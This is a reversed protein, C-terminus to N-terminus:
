FPDTRIMLADPLGPLPHARGNRIRAFLESAAHGTPHGARTVPTRDQVVTLRAADGCAAPNASHIATIRGTEDLDLRDATAPLIPVPAALRAIRWTGPQGTLMAETVAGVAAALQHAPDHFISNCLMGCGWGPGTRLAQGLDGRRMVRATNGLTIQGTASLAILGADHEPHAALLAPLGAMDHLAALNLARGDRGPANPLRHGTVLGVGDAGPLFQSLPEPRNPGSSIVAAHRAQMWDAPLTLAAIGGDQVARQHHRGEADLISFVAFGRIAGRGLLEAALLGEAVARGAQAGFAAIGITM